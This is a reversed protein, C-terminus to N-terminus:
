GEKKKPEEEAIAKHADLIDVVYVMTEGALRSRTNAYGSQPPVVLLVQSGVTQELLGQDWGEVLRGIGIEASQPPTGDTWTTDVVAGDSWRVATFEVTVIQGARVQQGTGRILPHVVLDSPPDGRLIRV